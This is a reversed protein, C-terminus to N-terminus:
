GTWNEVLRDLRNGPLVTLPTTTMWLLLLATEITVMPQVVDERRTM